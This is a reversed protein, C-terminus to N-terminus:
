LRIEDIQSNGIYKRLLMCFNPATLPAKKNESTLYILPLSANASIQLLFKEGNNKITLILEEPEPQAIKVIRGGTLKEQLERALAHLTIGNFAM